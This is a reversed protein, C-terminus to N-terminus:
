ENSKLKKAPNGAWIENDPIDKLVVAGAGVIVNSGIKVGQKVVTNGGILSTEGIQVNGLLVTGPAIHCFNHIICEHEIICGTNLITGEGIRALSNIKAGASIFTGNGVTASSSIMADKSVVTVFELGLKTLYESVGRRILNDGIGHVISVKNKKLSLLAKNDKESGLYSLNYPNFSKHEHELYGEIHADLQQVAEIVVYAHGSYGLIAVPTNIVQM